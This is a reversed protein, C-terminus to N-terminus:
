DELELIQFLIEDFKATVIECVRADNTRELALQFASCQQRGISRWRYPEVGAGALLECSSSPWPSTCGEEKDEDQPPAAAGEKARTHTRTCESTCPPSLSIGRGADNWGIERPRSALRRCYNFVPNILPQRARELTDRDIYCAHAEGM